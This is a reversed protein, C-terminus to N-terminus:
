QLIKDLNYDRERMKTLEEVNNICWSNAYIKSCHPHNDASWWVRITKIGYLTYEEHRIIFLNALSCGCEKEAIPKIIYRMLDDTM